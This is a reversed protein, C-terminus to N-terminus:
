VGQLDHKRRLQLIASRGHLCLHRRARDRDGRGRRRRRSPHAAAAIGSAGDVCARRLGQRLVLKRAQPHPRHVPRGARLHRAATGGQVLRLGVALRPRHRRRTEARRYQRPLQHRVAVAPSGPRPAASVRGAPRRHHRAAGAGFARGLPECDGGRAREGAWAPRLHRIRRYHWPDGEGHGRWKGTRLALWCALSVRCHVELAMRTTPCALFLFAPRRKAM